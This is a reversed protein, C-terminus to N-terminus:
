QCHLHSFRPNSERIPSSFAPYFYIIYYYYCNDPYLTFYLYKWVKELLQYFMYGMIRCNNRNVIGSTHLTAGDSPRGVNWCGQAATMPNDLKCNSKHTSYISIKVEGNSKRLGNSKKKQLPANNFIFTCSHGPACKWTSLFASSDYSAM